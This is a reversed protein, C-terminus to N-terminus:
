ANRANRLLQEFRDLFDSSPMKETRFIWHLAIKFSEECEPAYKNLLNSAGRWSIMEERDCYAKVNRALDIKNREIYEGIAKFVSSVWGYRVFESLRDIKFGMELM